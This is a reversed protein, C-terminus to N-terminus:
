SVVCNSVSPGSCMRKCTRDQVGNDGRDATGFTPENESVRFWAMWQTKTLGSGVEIQDGGLCDYCRQWIVLLESFGDGYPPLLAM